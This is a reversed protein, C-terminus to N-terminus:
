YIGSVNEGSSLATKAYISSSIFKEDIKRCKRVMFITFVHNNKGSM